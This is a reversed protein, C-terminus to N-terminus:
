LLNLTSIACKGPFYGLWALFYRPMMEYDLGSDELERPIISESQNHSRDGFEVTKSRGEFKKKKSQIKIQVRRLNTERHHFQCNVGTM